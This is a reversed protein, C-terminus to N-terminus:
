GAADESAGAAAPESTTAAPQESAPESEPPDAPPTPEVSPTEAPEVPADSSAPASPQETPEGTPPSPEDGPDTPGDTPTAPDTPEAPDAVTVTFPDSTSGETMPTSFVKWRYTTTQRVRVTARVHAGQDVQVTDWTGDPQKAQLVARAGAIPTGRDDAVTGTLTVRDGATVPASPGDITTTSRYGEFDYTTSAGPRGIQWGDLSVPNGDCGFAVSYFGYGDGGMARVFAPVGSSGVTAVQERTSMDYKTWVYGLGTVPVTTWGTSAPASVEARGIWMLDTGTDAPAQFGAYAVGTTGSEARVAMSAVSTTAMSEVYGVVGVANGGAPDFALSRKGLGGTGQNVGIMPQLSEAARDFVADCGVMTLQARNGAPLDTGRVVVVADGSASAGVLAGSAVAALATAM